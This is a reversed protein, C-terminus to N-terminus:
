RSVYYTWSTMGERQLHNDEVACLLHTGCTTLLSEVEDKPLYSMRMPNLTLKEYLVRPSVGLGRLVAYGRRRLQMRRRPPIFSPVQFVLLGGAALVRVLECIYTRILAQGPLHQLVRRTIVLDYSGDNFQALDSNVNLIFKCNAVGQNLMIARNIMSESIDTGHCERFYPALARTLRGVGCGFDLAREFRAPRELRKAVALIEDIEEQGTRFFASPDWYGFRLQPETLVAWLPDLEGLEDWNQKQKSLQL